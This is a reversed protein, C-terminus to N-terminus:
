VAFSIKCKPCFVFVTMAEDGGRTQKEDTQTPGSCKGCPILDSLAMQRGHSIQRAEVAKQQACRWHYPNMDSENRMAAIDEPKLEGSLLKPRLYTNGVNSDPHLHQIVLDLRQMYQNELRTDFVETIGKEQAWSIVNEHFAQELALIIEKPILTQGDHTELLEVMRKQIAERTSTQIELVKSVPPKAKPKAVAKVTKVTPKPPKVPIARKKVTPKSTTSSSSANSRASHVSHVSRSSANDEKIRPKVAVSIKTNTKVEQKSMTSQEM